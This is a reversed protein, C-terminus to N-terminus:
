YDLRLGLRIQRPAQYATPKGFRPNLGDPNVTSDFDKAPNTVTDFTYTQDVATAAQANALNFVELSGNLRVDKRLKSTVGLKLDLTHLTPTVGGSAKLYVENSGYAPSSALSYYPTGSRGVYAGGVELDVVPNVTFAKGAYIKLTHRRAGPLSRDRNVSLEPLDFDSLANPDLQGSESRYFGAYEGRLWSMTYNAMAIFGHAFPRSAAVSFADYIREAAPALVAAGYGPNGIVRIEGGSDVDELVRVLHNRWYVASIGINFPLNAAVGLSYTHAVPPAVESDVVEAEGSTAFFPSPYVPSNVNLASSSRCGGYLEEPSGIPCDTLRHVHQLEQQSSLGRIAVNLPVNQYQYAYHSFLRFKGSKTPDWSIGVEPSLMFPFVLDRQEGQITQGDYRVSANVVLNKQIFWTDAVFLGINFSTGSSGVAELAVGDNPGRLFGYQINTASTGALNERLRVMGSQAQTQTAWNAEFDLGARIRHEGKAMFRTSVVAHGEFRDTRRRTLLGPGGTRYTPVTCLLINNSMPNAAEACRAAAEPSLDEFDAISHNGTTPSQRRWYVSPIHAAMGARQIDDVGSGDSGESDAQGHVWGFTVDFQTKKSIRKTGRLVLANTIVSETRGLATADGNLNSVGMRESEPDFHYTGDGGSVSRAGFLSLSIETTPSVHYNLKGIWQAVNGDVFNPRDSGPLHEKAREGTAENIKPEFGNGNDELVLGWLSRDLRYRRRAWSAGAFFFLRDKIIPGSLSAGGDFVGALSSQTEVVTSRFVIPTRAGELAGPTVSSWASGHWQNSGRRTRVDFVGAARRGWMPDAGLTSITASEIFEMSLPLLLVGLMPDGVRIGDIFYSNEPSTSGSISIGYLDDQVGPLVFAMSEFSRATAGRNEPAYLPLLRLAAPDLTEVFHSQANKESVSPEPEDAHSSAVFMSLGCGITLSILRKQCVMVM